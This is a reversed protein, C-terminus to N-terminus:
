LRRWGVAWCLTGCALAAPVLSMALPLSGTADTLAGVIPPSIADGLLHIALISLAFARARLRSPVSNVLVANIPGNYCWLLFQSVVIAAGLAAKSEVQLGLVVAVTAGAMTLCSLAFYPNKTRGQLKDALLGGVLTGGLGGIVTGTGVLSGAEALDLGRLRAMWTPMWDALAGSAFTVLIYGLVAYRYERNGLLAPVAQKWPTPPEGKDNDFTGREPERVFLVAGAALLGPFGCAMFAVRWGYTEGLVGGLVFGVAAGVPIAVYFATLVRNRREPPYFDSLLAPSLTAYAAEGVGVLARAALFTWFGTAFAALGTALSWLAVGAAIVQKRPLKDALTGFVPSALMYVVVFATLPLGTQADTLGLDSKFLDKVASPVYRDVYNLLNMATLVVVAATAGPLARPPM